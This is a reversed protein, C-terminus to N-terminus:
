NKFKLSCGKVLLHNEPPPNKKRNCEECLGNITHHTERHCRSCKM